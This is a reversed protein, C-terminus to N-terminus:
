SNLFVLHFLKLLKHYYTFVKVKLYFVLMM